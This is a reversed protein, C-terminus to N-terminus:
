DWIKDRVDYQNLPDKPQAPFRVAYTETEQFYQHYDPVNTLDQDASLTFERPVYNVQVFGEHTEINDNTSPYRFRSGTPVHEIVIM